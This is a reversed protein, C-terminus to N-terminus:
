RSLIKDFWKHIFSESLFEEELFDLMIERIEVPNSKEDMPIVVLPLFSNTPNLLIRSGNIHETEIWFSHYSNWPYLFSGFLIGKDTIKIQVSKTEKWSLLGVTLSAIIIFIGFLFNDFYFALTAAGASIIGLIWYWDKSKRDFRHELTQWEILTQM